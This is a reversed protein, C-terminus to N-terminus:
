QYIWWMEEPEPPPPPEEEPEPPLPGTMRKVLATAMATALQNASNIRGLDFFYVGDDGANISSSSWVASRNERDILLLSFNVRPVGSTGQSEEYDLVTGSVVLDALLSDFIFDTQPLSVGGDMIVRYRLLEQRVVGPEIITYSGDAFLARIVALMVSTGASSNGSKNFFPLVAVRFKREPLLTPARYFSKPAYRGAVSGAPAAPAGALYGALSHTLRSLETDILQRVDDVLGLGLFGPTDVGTMGASKMWLIEPTDGTAVLRCTMALRPPRGNSYSELSTILVAEAGTEDRLQRAAQGDIGGTYRLRHRTLFADVEREPLTRIGQEALRAFLGERIERVPPANRCLNEFPFVAVLPGHPAPVEKPPHACGALLGFLALLAPWSSFSSISCIM